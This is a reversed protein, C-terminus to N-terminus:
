ATAESVPKGGPPSAGDLGQDPKMWFALVSGVLLLAISGLFPLDWNGTRDIVYGAVLPSIIAALPRPIDSLCM